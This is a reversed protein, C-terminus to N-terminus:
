EKKVVEAAVERRDTALVVALLATIPLPMFVLSLMLALRIARLVLRVSARAFTRARRLFARM